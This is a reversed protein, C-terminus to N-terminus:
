GIRNPIIQRMINKIKIVMTLNPHHHHTHTHTSIFFTSRMEAKPYNCKLSYWSDESKRIARIILSMSM